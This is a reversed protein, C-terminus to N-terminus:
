NDVNASIKAPKQGSFIAFNLYRWHCAVETFGSAALWQLQDEVSSPLDEAQYNAFYHAADLGQATMYDCWLTEYHQTLTPTTGTVLDRILLLGGPNLAQWLQKFLCQKGTGDLHHVALGSVILDYGTGIPDLAFNGQQLQVRDGYQALNQQCVALMNEALDFATVQATPFNRLVLDALIGTGAGLDLVTQPLPRDHRILALMLDHQEHYFPIIKPIVGDYDFAARNFTNHVKETQM